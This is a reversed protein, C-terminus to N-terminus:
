RWGTDYTRLMCRDRGAALLVHADRVDVFGQDGYAGGLRCFQFINGARMLMGKPATDTPPFDHTGLATGSWFGPYIKNRYIPTDGGRGNFLAARISPSDTGSRRLGARQLGMSVESSAQFLCRGVARVNAMVFGDHVRGPFIDAVACAGPRAAPWASGYVAADVAYLTSVEFLWVYICWVVTRLLAFAPGGRRMRNRAPANAAARVRPGSRSGRRWGRPPRRQRESQRLM